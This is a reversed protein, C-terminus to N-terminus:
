VCAMVMLVVEVCPEVVVGRKQYGPLHMWSLSSIMGTQRSIEGLM